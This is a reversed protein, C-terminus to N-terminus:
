KRKNTWKLKYIINNGVGASGRKNSKYKVVVPYKAWSNDVIGLSSNYIDLYNGNTAGPSVMNFDTFIEPKMDDVFQGHFSLSYKFGDQPAESFDGRPVDTFFVGTVKAWYIITEGDDSVVFKYISFQDSLINNIIYKKKPAVRGLKMMRIYEDYLKVMMYIELNKSDSFTLNFDFGNDSKLSHSRYSINTGYINSSTQIIEASINPLELRSKVYNSLICNFPTSFGNLPTASYQLQGLITKYRDYANSFLPSNGLGSALPSSYSNGDFINLDPKTFFLYERNATSAITPNLYGFRNFTNFEDISNEPFILNSALINKMDENKINGADKIEEAYYDSSVNNFINFNSM